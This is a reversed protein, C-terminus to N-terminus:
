NLITLESEIKELYIKKYRETSLIKYDYFIKDVNKQYILNQFDQFAQKQIDDWLTQFISLLEYKQYTRKSVDDQNVSM